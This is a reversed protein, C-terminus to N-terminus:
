ANVVADSLVLADVALAGGPAVRIPNVEFDTIHPNAAVAESVSVVIDALADIDTAPRGRWGQLLPFCKLRGIMALAM